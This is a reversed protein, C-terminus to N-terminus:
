RVLLSMVANLTGRMVDKQTVIGVIREEETVLLRRINKNHMLLAAEGIPTNAEVTILPASMIERVAVGVTCLKEPCCRKLIDRETLIGVFEKNKTVVVSGINNEVMVSIADSVSTTDEVSIIKKTMVNQIPYAIKM